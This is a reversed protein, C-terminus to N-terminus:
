MRLFYSTVISTVILVHYMGCRPCRFYYKDDRLVLGSGKCVKCNRLQTMKDFVKVADTFKAVNEEDVVVALDAISFQIFYRAYKPLDGNRM